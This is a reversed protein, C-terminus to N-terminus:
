AGSGFFSNGPRLGRMHPLAHRSSEAGHPTLQAGSRIRPAQFMCTGTWNSVPRRMYGETCKAKFRSQPQYVVPSSTMTRTVYVDDLCGTPSAFASFQLRNRFWVHVGGREVKFCSQPQSVLNPKRGAISRNDLWRYAVAVDIVPQFFSFVLPLNRRALPVDWERGFLHYRRKPITFGTKKKEGNRKKPPRSKRM